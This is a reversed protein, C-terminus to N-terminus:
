REAKTGPTEAKDLVLQVYLAPGWALAQECVDFRPHHLGQATRDSGDGAGLFGFCGPNISLANSKSPPTCPPSNKSTL